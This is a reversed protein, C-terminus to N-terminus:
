ARRSKWSIVYRYPLMLINPVQKMAVSWDYCSMIDEGGDKRADEGREDLVRRPRFDAKVYLCRDCSAMKLM